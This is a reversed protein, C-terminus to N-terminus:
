SAEKVQASATATKKTTKKRVSKATGDAGAFEMLRDMTKRTLLSSEIASRAETTSFLRRMQDAQQGASGVIREIEDSVEAAEVAISEDDALRTLALSRRVREAAAPLLEERLQEATRQIMALYKDLDQGTSRAQDKILREIEREILVPPFEIAKARKVLEGVAKDRYSEEAQGELRELIDSRFRDRLTDLGAFGEGVERAFDDNLEPLREEKVDKVVATVTGDKGSLAQEGPPTAVPIEKAVGKEAGVLGEAFGPLLVTAGERLRFEADDNKYVENGDIVVRVDARVIDGVQVPRDVPEHLAYRRRMEEVAAAVDAEDVVVPQRAVRVKKYDGLDVTPRIPVTAKFALPEDKLLEIAPQGIADIDGEDIAKNYAEPILIDVAEEVLRGRGVHRELMDRPTKGKRFGPVNVRQVLKRYAKDLSREMQEPDVEIELVVQSQPIHQTSVKV